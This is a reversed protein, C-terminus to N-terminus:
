NRTRRHHVNAHLQNVDSRAVAGPPTDGAKVVIDMAGPVMPATTRVTDSQGGPQNAMQEPSVQLASVLTAYAAEPESAKHIFGGANLVDVGAEALLRANDPNVGGDWGIELQPKLQRLRRVKDLLRLDAVGGFSGFNGSFILVHDIVGLGPEITAVPTEPLLAIGTEIGHRHLTDAFAMFDGEAEAHLIVLQPGLAVLAELHDLPRKNMVHIDARMGGPWWVDNVAVLTNPTMSGDAVDIHLRVAAMAVHAIQAQFEDATAADITPCITAAM